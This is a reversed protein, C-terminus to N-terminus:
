KKVYNLANEILDEVSKININYQRGIEELKEMNSKHTKLLEVLEPDGDKKVANSLNARIDLGRQYMAVFEEPKIKKGSSLLENIYSEIEFCENKFHNYNIM